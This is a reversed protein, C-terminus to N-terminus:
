CQKKVLKEVKFPVELTRLLAEQILTSHEEAQKRIKKLMRLRIQTKQVLGDLEKEDFVACRGSPIMVRVYGTAAKPEPRLEEALLEIYLM